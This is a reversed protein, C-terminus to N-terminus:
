ATESPFPIAESATMWMYADLVARIHASALRNSRIFQHASAAIARRDAPRALLRDIMASWADGGSAAAPVPVLNATRGDILCSIFRDAAAIVLMGNSMADLVVSKHEGASEPQILFDGQLLLDRRSELEEILSLRNLVGLREAIKWIGARRAALADVFILGDGNRQFSSAVGEFASQFPKTQRGSGIFMASPARGPPVVERPPESAHVGWYTPRVSVGGTRLASEIATDPALFVPRNGGSRQPGRVARQVLGARWVELALGADLAGALRRGLEWVSGGFVHVVDIPDPEDADDILALNRVIRRAALGRTVSLVRRSYPVMSRFVGGMAGVQPRNLDSDPVAHIVRVGEDALGIELRALMSRERSAFFEDVLILVRM